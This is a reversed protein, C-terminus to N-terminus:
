LTYIAVITLRVIYVTVNLVINHYVHVIQYQTLNVVAYVAISTIMCIHPNIIIAKQENSHLQIFQLYKKM